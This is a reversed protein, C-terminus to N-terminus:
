LFVSLGVTFGIAIVIVVLMVLGVTSLNARCDM